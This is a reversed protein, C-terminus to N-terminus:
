NYNLNNISEFFEYNKEIIPDFIYGLMINYPLLITNKRAAM